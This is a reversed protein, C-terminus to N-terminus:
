GKFKAELIPVAANIEYGAKKFNMKVVNANIRNLQGFQDIM